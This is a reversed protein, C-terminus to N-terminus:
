LNFIKFFDRLVPTFEDPYLLTSVKKAVVKPNDNITYVPFKRDLKIDSLKSIASLTIKLDEFENVIKKAGINLESNFKEKRFFISADRSEEIHKPNIYYELGKNFVKDIKKLHSLKIDSSLIDSKTIPKKLGESIQMLLEDLTIRYLKLLYEIRSINHEVTM